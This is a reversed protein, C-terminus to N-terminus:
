PRIRGRGGREVSMEANGLAFNIIDAQERWAADRERGNKDFEDDPGLAFFGAM